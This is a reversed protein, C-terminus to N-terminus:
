QACQPIHLAYGHLIKHVNIHKDSNDGRGPIGKAENNAQSCKNECRLIGGTCLSVDCIRGICLKRQDNGM